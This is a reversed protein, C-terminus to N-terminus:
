QAKQIADQVANMIAVSGITAGSVADVKTSQTEIIRNSITGEALVGKWILCIVESFESCRMFAFGDM